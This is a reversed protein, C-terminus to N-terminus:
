AGCVARYPRGPLADAWERRTLERGAILCAQRKWVEPSLSLRVGNTGTPLAYLDAGDHSMATSVFSEAEVTLPSGIPRRSAVDWLLITGDASGTVLTRGDPTFHPYLLRQGQGQVPAGVPRWDDTGYFRGSGNFLGVFLLRGDPSFAVSRALEGTQLRTVVRSTGVERVEVGHESAAGALLKGDPSFAVANVAIASRFATRAATRVDWILLQPDKTNVDGAALLRGDPSFAIAQTWGRLGRLRAAPALTRADRLDVRGGAGGVALWRGDSSFDLALAPGGGAPVTARQRLTATDVLDVSGDSQTVALTRDDPSVASGRPTFDDARFPRGLPVTALLRRNLSLDWLAVRGDIGSSIATRGDPTVALGEASGAHARYRADVAGSEADRVVLRGNEAVTLLRAGDPTFVIRNVHARNRGPLQRVRSSRRDLLVM